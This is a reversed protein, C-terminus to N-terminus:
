PRIPQWAVHAELGTATTLDIQVPTGSGDAPALLLMSDVVDSAILMTGDPSWTAGSCIAQGTFDALDPCNGDPQAFVTVAQPNGALVDATDVISTCCGAIQKGDPSWSPWFTLGTAYDQDTM